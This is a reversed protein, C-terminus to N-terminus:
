PQSRRHELRPERGEFREHCRHCRIGPRDAVAGVGRLQAHAKMNGRPFPLALCMKEGTGLEACISPTVWSLGHGFRSGM